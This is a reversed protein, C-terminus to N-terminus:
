GLCNGWQVVAGHLSFIQRARHTSCGLTKTLVCDFHPTTAADIRRAGACRIENLIRVFQGSTQRFVRTLLVQLDGLVCCQALRGEDSSLMM